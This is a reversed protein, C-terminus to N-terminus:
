WSIDALFVNNEKEEGLTSSNGHGPYVPTEPPFIRNLERISDILQDFSGGPLDTRGVSGHFLLDGTFLAGETSYCLSGASHGPTPVAKVTADGVTVEEGGGLLHDLKGATVEPLGPFLRFADPDALVIEVEGSGYIPAGTARALDVAAGIHDHHGHTIFIAEVAAQRRGIEAEILDPDGGPDVLFGSGGGGEFALYCNAQLPGVAMTVIEFGM